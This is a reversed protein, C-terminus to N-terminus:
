KHLEIYHPMIVLNMYYDSPVGRFEVCYASFGKEDHGECFPPPAYVATHFLWHDIWKALEPPTMPPSLAKWGDKVKFWSDEVLPHGIVLYDPRELMWRFKLNQSPKPQPLRDGVVVMPLMGLALTLLDRGEGEICFRPENSHRRFPSRIALDPLNDTQRYRENAADPWQFDPPVPPRSEGAVPTALPIAAGWFECTLGDQLRTGSHGCWCHRIVNDRAVVVDGCEKCLIAQYHNAM